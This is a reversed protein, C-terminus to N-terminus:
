LVLMSFDNTNNASLVIVLGSATSSVVRGPRVRATNESKTKARLSWVPTLGIRGCRVVVNTNLIPMKVNEFNRWSVAEKEENFLAIRCRKSLEEHNASRLCELPDEAQRCM